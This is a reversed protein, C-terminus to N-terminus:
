NRQGLLREARELAGGYWEPLVEKARVADLWACSVCERSDLRPEGKCAALFLTLCKRKGGPLDYRIEARFDPEPRVIFGTEEYVERCATQEETEFAEMHGKPVSCTGSRRQLLCLYERGAGTERYVIVGCSKPYLAEVPTRYYREQFEVAAAIEGQHFVVGAPAAVLKDESDDERHIIGIVAATYSPVPTDVGLLYVDLEEGDGGMVGPLYGYNLPYTLTYKEKRHVYGVPRDVAIEVTRGLYFDALAKRRLLAFVADKVGDERMAAVDARAAGLGAPEQLVSIGAPFVAILYPLAERGDASHAGALFLSRGDWPAPLLWFGASKLKPAAEAVDTLSGALVDLAVGDYPSPRIERVVAGLTERLRVALRECPTEKERDSMAM